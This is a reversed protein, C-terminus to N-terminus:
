RTKNMLDNLTKENKKIRNDFDGFAYMTLTAPLWGGGSARRSTNTYKYEGVYYVWSQEPYQLDKTYVMIIPREITRGCHEMMQDYYVESPSMIVGGKVQQLVKFGNLLYLTDKQPHALSSAEFLNEMNDINAFRRGCAINSLLIFSVLAGFVFYRM